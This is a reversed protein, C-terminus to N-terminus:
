AFEYLASWVLDTYADIGAPENPDSQYTILRRQGREIMWILWGATERPLLGPDAWGQQQGREIHAALEDISREMARRVAVRTAADYSSVDFAATVLARHPRYTEVIVALASRLDHRSLPGLNWWAQNALHLEEIIDAFLFQLLEGKDAFHAYFTSRAIGAGATLKEVSLRTFSEGADLLEETATRLRRATDARREARNATTKRSVSAM